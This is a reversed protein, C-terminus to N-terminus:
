ARHSSRERGLLLGAALAAVPIALHWFLRHGADGVPCSLGVVLHGALGGLLGILGWLLPRSFVFGGRMVVAFLFAAPAAILVGNTFCHLGKVGTAAEAAFPFLAIIGVPLAGLVVGTLTSLELPRYSGPTSVRTLVMAITAAGLLLLGALGPRRWLAQPLEAGLWLVGVVTVALFVGILAALLVLHSPAPEVAEMTTGLRRRIGALM